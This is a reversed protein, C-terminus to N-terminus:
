NERHKNRPLSAVGGLTAANYSFELDIIMCFLTTKNPQDFQILWFCSKKPSFPLLQCWKVSLADVTRSFLKGKAVRSAQSKEARLTPDLV